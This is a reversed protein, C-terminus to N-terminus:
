DRQPDSSVSLGGAQTDVVSLGGEASQSESLSLGGVHQAERSRAELTELVPLVEALARGRMSTRFSAQQSLGLLPAYLRPHAQRLLVCLEQIDALTADELAKVMLQGWEIGKARQGVRAARVVQHALAVRQPAVDFRRWVVHFWVADVVDPSVSIARELVALADDIPCWQMWAPVRELLEPRSWQARAPAVSQLLPWLAESQPSELELLDDLTCARLAHQMWHEYVLDLFATRPAPAARVFAAFLALQREARLAPRQDKVVSWHRLATDVVVSPDSYEWAMAWMGQTCPHTPAQQTMTELAIHQLTPLHFTRPFVHGWFAWQHPSMASAVNVWFRAHADVLQNLDRAYHQADPQAAMRAKLSLAQGEISYQISLPDLARRMIAKIDGAEDSLADMFDFLDLSFGVQGVVVRMPMHDTVLTARTQTMGLWLPLGSLQTHLTVDVLGDARYIPTVQVPHEHVLLPQNLTSRGYSFAVLRTLHRRIRLVRTVSWLAPALALSLGAGLLIVILIIVNM